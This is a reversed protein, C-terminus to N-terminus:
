ILLSLPRHCAPCSKSTLLQRYLVCRRRSSERFTSLSFGTCPDSSYITFCGRWGLWYWYLPAKLRPYFLDWPLFCFLGFVQNGPNLPANHVPTARPHLDRGSFRTSCASHPTIALSPDISSSDSCVFCALCDLKCYMCNALAGWLPYAPAWSSSSVGAAVSPHAFPQAWASFM